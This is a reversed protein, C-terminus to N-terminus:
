HPRATTFPKPLPTAAWVPAGILIRDYHEGYTYDDLRYFVEMLINLREEKYGKFRDDRIRIVLDIRDREDVDGSDEVYDRDLVPDRRESTRDLIEYLGAVDSPSEALGDDKPRRGTYNSASGFLAIFVRGLSRDDYKTMMAAIDVNSATTWGQHVTLFGPTIDLEARVYEAPEAVTGTMDSVADTARRALDYLNLYDPDRRTIALGIPKFAFSYTKSTRSRMAEHQQVIEKVLRRSIYRFNTPWNDTPVLQPRAPICPFCLSRGGTGAM